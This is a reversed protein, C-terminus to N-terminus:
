GRRMCIWPTTGTVAEDTAGADDASALAAAPTHASAFRDLGRERGELGDVGSMPLAPTVEAISVTWDDTVVSAVEALASAPESASASVVEIADSRVVM